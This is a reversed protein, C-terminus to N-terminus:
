EADDARHAVLVSCPAHSAVRESVSGLARVGSLGRSGVIVLSAREERAAKPIEDEANGRRFLLTPELGREGALALAHSGLQEAHRLESLGAAVLYIRTKHAGAIESALEVGLEADPSGDSAVLVREPFEIGKPPVRAVLVPVEGHHVAGLAVSGLLISAARSAGHSAVVLLDSPSAADILARVPDETHLVEGSADVDAQDAAAIAEGLAQDARRASITAQRSQGHGRAVRACVFHLSTGPGALAIAQRAAEHGGRSGDVGCTISKFPSRPEESHDSAPRSVAPSPTKDDM